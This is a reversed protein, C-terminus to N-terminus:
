GRVTDGGGMTAAGGGDRSGMRRAAEEAEWRELAGGAGVAECLEAARAVDGDADWLAASLAAHAEESESRLIRELRSLEAEKVLSESEVIGLRTQLLPHEAAMAGYASEPLPRYRCFFGFHWPMFEMYRRFGLEDARFHDKFNECLRAYVGVRELASPAWERGERVERFIWPKVLAGRGVMTAHAGSLEARNRHEYWTLIDGNGIVPIRRERAIDRIAEWNAARTYRQEKTRAHIVVAAAGANEVAEALATAPAESSGAGLRIKVTLPIPVGDAIGRVLRELKAPKKLLAAGLGRKWTEHIPCGCNLDLFDAGQDAALRGANVGEAIQNTAIQVGFLTESEHRRLRALEVPNRRLAFRAFVMESVTVACGFEEVCLRRFPLNGGKTLPALFLEGSIRAQFDAVAADSVLRACGERGDPVDAYSRRGDFHPGRTPTPVANEDVTARATAACGARSRSRLVPVARRTARFMGAPHTAPGACFRRSACRQMARVETLTDFPGTPRLGLFRM